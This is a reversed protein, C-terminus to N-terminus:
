SSPVSYAGHRWQPRGRRWRPWRSQRGQVGARTL